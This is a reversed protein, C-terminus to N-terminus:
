LCETLIRWSKLAVGEFEAAIPIGELQDISMVKAQALLDSVYRLIEAYQAARDAETWKCHETHPVCNTDWCEKSTSVGWGEGGLSFHIGLMANQYGSCGFTVKKIKGLKM